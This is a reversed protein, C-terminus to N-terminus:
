EIEEPAQYGYVDWGEIHNRAFLEIKKSTPYMEAIFEEKTIDVKM